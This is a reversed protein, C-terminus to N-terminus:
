WIDYDPINEKFYTEVVSAFGVQPGNYPWPVGGGSSFIAFSNGEFVFFNTPAFAQWSSEITSIYVPPEHGISYGFHYSLPEARIYFTLGMPITSGNLPIQTSSITTNKLMSSYICLGTSNLCGTVGIDQHQFESLYASIGVTMKPGLTGSTPSITASFTMNLSKQKRLLAAPTDRDGLGFVNPKFIVGGGNLEFNSSYPTRLQYWGKNLKKSTFDDRFIAPTGRQKSSPPGIDDSLLIPKQNNLVPWGENNWRVSTLFTERGLPSTGNIKRRAIFAAYWDGGPTDVLTAHGTSQITLNDYGYAGNFLLPNNPAAVWPGTPSLSRAITSRHLDDTGGEAILLYYYGERYFMKPGEPRATSNHTLTGNWLSRYEGICKGTGLHIECQYIGWVRDKNNNPAMLNLYTKKSKPDQFLGPDIGWPDAWTLDSWEMLDTSSAYYIRPWVRAVPDYTWRTMAAIYFKGDIYSLTPAWSGAGTPVGYVQHTKPTSFAHSILEWNELDTSRYIPTGPFYEFSSTAIYYTNGVRLISPDPNWGSIIPNKIATVFSVCTFLFNCFQLFKLQRLM